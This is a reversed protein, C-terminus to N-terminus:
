PSIDIPDVAQTPQRRPTQPSTFIEKVRRLLLRADSSSCGQRMEVAVPLGCRNRIEVVLIGEFNVLYVQFRKMTERMRTSISKDPSSLAACVEHPSHGIADEVVNHDILIESILSGDDIYVHLEFTARGKFLFEKVGTMFCKIRGQVVPADEEKESLKAFLSALYTFPSERDGALILPHEVVDTMDTDRNDSAPDIGHLPMSVDIMDIEDRNAAANSSPNPETFSSGHPVCFPEAIRAQIDAGVAGITADSGEGMDTDRDDLAADLFPNPEPNRRVNPDAVTRREEGHNHRSAGIMNIEELNMTSSLPNAEANSRSMSISLDETISRRLNVSFNSSTSDLKGRGGTDRVASATNRPPNLESSCSVSPVAFGQSGRERISGHNPTRANNMNTDDLVVSSNSPRSHEASSRSNRVNDAERTSGRTDAGLTPCFLTLHDANLPCDFAFYVYFKHFRGLKCIRQVLVKSTWCVINM